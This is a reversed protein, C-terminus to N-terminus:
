ALSCMKKLAVTKGKRRVLLGWLVHRKWETIYDTWCICLSFTPSGQRRQPREHLCDREAQTAWEKGVSTYTKSKLSSLHLMLVITRILREVQKLNWNVFRPTKACKWATKSTIRKQLYDQFTIRSQDADRRLEKREQTTNGSNRQGIKKRQGFIYNATHILSSIKEMDRTCRLIQRCMPSWWRGRDVIRRVGGDLM